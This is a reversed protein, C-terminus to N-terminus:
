CLFALHVSITTVVQLWMTDSHVVSWKSQHQWDWDPEPQALWQSELFTTPLLPCEVTETDHNPLLIGVALTVTGTAWSFSDGSAGSVGRTPPSVRNLAPSDVETDRKWGMKSPTPFSEIKRTKLWSAKSELPQTKGMECRISVRRIDPWLVKRLTQYESRPAANM